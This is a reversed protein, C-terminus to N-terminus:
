KFLFILILCYSMGTTWFRILMTVAQCQSAFSPCDGEVKFHNERALSNQDLLTTQILDFSSIRDVEKIYSFFSILSMLKSPSAVYPSLGMKSASVDDRFHLGVLLSYDM